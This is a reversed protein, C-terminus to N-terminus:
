HDPSRNAAGLRQIYQQVKEEFQNLFASHVCAEDLTRARRVEFLVEDCQLATAGDNGYLIGAPWEHESYRFWEILHALVRAQTQRDDPKLALLREALQMGTQRGIQAWLHEAGYLNQVCRELMEICWPDPRQYGALLVPFIVQEFLEHRIAHVVPRNSFYCRTWEEREEDTAFTEIFRALLSAALRKNGQEKAVEYQEFLAQNM